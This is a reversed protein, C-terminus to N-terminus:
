IQYLCLRSAYVLVFLRSRFGFLRLQYRPCGCGLPFWCLRASVFPRPCVPVLLRISVPVFSRRLTRVLVLALWYLRAPVFSCPCVSVLLLVSVLVFSRSRTRVPASGVCGLASLCAPVSPSWCFFPSSCLRAAALVFSPRHARVPASLSLTRANAGLTTSCREGGVLYLGVGVYTGGMEREREGAGMGKM